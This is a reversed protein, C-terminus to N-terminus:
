HQDRYCSRIPGVWWSTFRPAEVDFSSKISAVYLAPVFPATMALRTGDSAEFEYGTANFTHSEDFVGQYVEANLELLFDVPATWSLRLGPNKLGEGGILAEYM